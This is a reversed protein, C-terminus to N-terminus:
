AIVCRTAPQKAPTLLPQSVCQFGVASLVAPQLANCTKRMIIKFDM